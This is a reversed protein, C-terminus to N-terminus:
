RKKNQNRKIKKMNKDAQYKMKKKYGPKVKKPKKVKGWAQKEDDTTQRERKQRANHAKIEKWENNRIDYHTFSLGQKELKQVLPLDEESYLNIATGEMGARATRGVRHTYFESEKPMQANIIHSVGQIDIGRSALDTAVIYQYRLNQLDKLMRKRERPSLGGHILGVHLGRDLLKRALEDAHEKGNTFIIALYPQILKSLGLIIDARDRHRVPILRHEITEPAPRDEDIQIHVPNSLYKKLFPQLREPITASFVLKQVQEDMRLLIQDVEQIFGLDLMLDAEDLVFSFAHHLDLAEEKVLDLIRGPTGVVIHPPTALKEITRQKDTGGILLKARWDQEKGAYSISKKVENYIQTALERTPATIVCQVQSKEDDIKDLIPLLYALTKGSGTHSQGILSDGRLAPPVVKYQITTPTHFGYGEVIDSAVPGIAFEMFKHHGM